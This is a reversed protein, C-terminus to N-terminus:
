LLGNDLLQKQWASLTKTSINYLSACEDLTIEPHARYFQVIEKKMDNSHKVSGESRQREKILSSLMAEYIVCPSDDEARSSVISLLMSQEVPHPPYFEPLMAEKLIAGATDSFDLIRCCLANNDPVDSSQWVLNFTFWLLYLLDSKELQVKGFLIDAIRTRSSNVMGGAPTLSGDGLDSLVHWAKTNDAQISISQIKNELLLSAAIEKCMTYDVVGGKFFLRHSAASDEQSTCIELLCDALDEEYPPLERGSALESAYAALNRYIRGATRSPTDLGPTRAIIWNMFLDDMAEPQLRWSDFSGLLSRSVDETWGNSREPFESKKIDASAERYRDKLKHVHKVGAGRLFAYIEILDESRNFRFGESIDLTRLLFWQMESLSFSLIHGLLLAEDRSLSQRYLRRNEKEYKARARQLKKENSRLDEPLMDESIANASDVNHWARSIIHRSLDPDYDAQYSAIQCLYEIYTRSEESSMDMAHSLSVEGFRHKKGNVIAEFGSLSDLSASSSEGFLKVNHARCFLIRMLSFRASHSYDHAIKQLKKKWLQASSDGPLSDIDEWVASIDLDLIDLFYSEAEQTYENM